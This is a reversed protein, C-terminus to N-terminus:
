AGLRYPRGRVLGETRDSCFDLFIGELEDRFGRIHNTYDEPLNGQSHEIAWASVVTDYILLTEMVDPFRLALKDADTAFRDPMDESDIMLSASLAFGPAPELIILNAQLQYTPRYGDISGPSSTTHTVPDIWYEQRELPIEYTTAGQTYKLSIRKVRGTGEPVPYERQNAVLATTKQDTIWGEDLTALQMTRRDMNANWLLLLTADSWFSAAATTERLLVRM